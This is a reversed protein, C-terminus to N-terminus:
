SQVTVRADEYAKTAKASLHHVGRHINANTTSYYNSVADIVCQPKQTTVANDLYALRHGHIKQNLIPFEHRNNKISMNNNGMNFGM